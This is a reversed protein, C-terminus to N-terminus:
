PAEGSKPVSFPSAAAADSKQSGAGLRAGEPHSIARPPTHEAISYTDTDRVLYAAIMEGLLGISMFQAGILFLAISYFLSATQHLHIDDLVSDNLRTVSWRVALYLM